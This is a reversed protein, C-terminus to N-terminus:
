WLVAAKLLATVLALGGSCSLAQPRANVARPRLLRHRTAAEMFYVGEKLQFWKVLQQVRPPFTKLPSLPSFPSAAGAAAEKTEM